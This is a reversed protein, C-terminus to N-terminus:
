ARSSTLQALLIAPALEIKSNHSFFIKVGIARSILLGFEATDRSLISLALLLAFAAFIAKVEQIPRMVFGLIHFPLLSTTFVVTFSTPFHITNSLDEKIKPQLSSDEGQGHCGIEKSSLLLKSRNRSSLNKSAIGEVSSKSSSVLHLAAAEKNSLSSKGCFSFSLSVLVLISKTSPSLIIFSTVEFSPVISCSPNPDVTDNWPRQLSRKFRAKGGRPNFSSKVMCLSAKGSRAVASLPNVSKSFSSCSLATLLGFSSSSNFSIYSDIAYRSMATNSISFKSISLLSLNFSRGGKITAQEM